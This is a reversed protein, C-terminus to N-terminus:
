LRANIGGTVVLTEGTIYAADESALFAVPGAIDAGVGFRGLLIEASLQSAIGDNKWLAESFSTKIIGPAVGNVRIKKDSLEKAMAKVLGLLATKSVSYAGLLPNAVYGVYSSIYIVSSGDAMYPLCEKTLLFAAKVNIEFIKDWAKEDTSLLSGMVPNVAVNSVLIDIKKYKAITADIMKKRQAADGVHCAIGLADFGKKTIDKVVADVQQQKRSSVIVSAGESALREAIALGIGATSGTVVAVKGVLRRCNTTSTM